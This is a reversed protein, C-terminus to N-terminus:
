FEDVLAELGADIEDGDGIGDTIGPWLLDALQGPGRYLQTACFRDANVQV